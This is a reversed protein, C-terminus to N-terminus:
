KLALDNVAVEKIAWKTVILGKSTRTSVPVPTLDFDLERVRAGSRGDLGNSLSLAPSVALLSRLSSVQSRLINPLIM